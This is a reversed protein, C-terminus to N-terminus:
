LITCAASKPAILDKRLGAFLVPANQQHHVMWCGPTSVWENGEVYKGAQIYEKVELYKKGRVDHVYGRLVAGNRPWNPKEGAYPEKGPRPDDRWFMGSCGGQHALVFTKPVDEAM